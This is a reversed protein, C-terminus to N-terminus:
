MSKICLTGLLSLLAKLSSKLFARSPRAILDDHIIAEDLGELSLM